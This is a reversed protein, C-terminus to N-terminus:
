DSLAAVVQEILWRQSEEEVFAHSADPCRKIRKDNKDWAAEFAQATRDREALLFTVPGAFDEIGLRMDQALSSPPPAPRMAQMLGGALKRLSVGGSILRILEKPNKLKEAYRARVADPPPAADAEEITWPNTLILGDCDAGQRLMLASAADCNGYGIIRTLHPAQERFAAVAAEIDPGEDTFGFNIGQSDGVGRRDFRMVPHGAASIQAALAAQGSFAGARTENGGTVLLMGTTGAAEDLTGVLRAGECDFTFHRRTM